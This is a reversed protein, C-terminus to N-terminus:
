SPKLSVMRVFAYFDKWKYNLWTNENSDSTESRDSIDVSVRVCRGVRKFQIVESWM